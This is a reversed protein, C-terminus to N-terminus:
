DLIVVKEFVKEVEDSKMYMVVVFVMEINVVYDFIDFYVIIDEGVDFLVMFEYIDKGGMVGFDVIVVCFNM